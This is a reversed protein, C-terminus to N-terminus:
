GEKVRTRVILVAFGLVICVEQLTPKQTPMLQPWLVGAREIPLWPMLPALVVGAGGFALLLWAIAKLWETARERTGLGRRCPSTRELKNLAEALTVLGAIWHIIQLAESM